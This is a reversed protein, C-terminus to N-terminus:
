KKRNSYYETFRWPFRTLEYIEIKCNTKTKLTLNMFDEDTKVYSFPLKRFLKQRRTKPFLVHFSVNNEFITETTLESTHESIVISFLNKRSTLINTNSKELSPSVEILSNIDGSVLETKIASKPLLALSNCEYFDLVNCKHTETDEHTATSESILFKFTDCIKELMRVKIIAVMEEKLKGIEDRVCDSHGIVTTDCFERETKILVLQEEEYIGNEVSSIHDDFGTIYVEKVFRM